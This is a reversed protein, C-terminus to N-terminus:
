QLPPVPVPELEAKLEVTPGNASVKREWSNYGTKSIRITHEGPAVLLDAPTTGVSKGDLDIDAGPPTSSVQLRIQSLEPGASAASQPRPAAGSFKAADLPFDGNVYATVETGKPIVVDKGHMFLFFPAAPFFVVGTAVIGATMAGAHGGGKMEKVMRLPTREGSLLRVTDIKLNLNGGRAMRRKPQAMTVTAWALSDKPIVVLEGVRVEEVVQFDVTEGAIVEASSVTRGFKLRVPTGDELVLRPAAGGAEQTGEPPVPVSPQPREEQPPLLLSSSTPWVNLAAVACVGVIFELVVYKM